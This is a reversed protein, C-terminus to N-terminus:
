IPLEVASSGPGAARQKEGHAPESSGQFRDLLAQELSSTSAVLTADPLRYRPRVSHSRCCGVGGGGIGTPEM